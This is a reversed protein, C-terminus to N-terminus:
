YIEEIFENYERLLRNKCIQSYPNYFKEDKWWKQIKTAYIDLVDILSINFREKIVTWDWQLRCNKIIFDKKLSKNLSLRNWNWSLDKNDKIFDWSINEKDSVYLWKWDKDKLTEIIDWDLKKELSLFKWNWDSDPFSRILNQRQYYSISTNSFLAMM